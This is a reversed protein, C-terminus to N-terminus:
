QVVSALFLMIVMIGATFAPIAMRHFTMFLVILNQHLEGGWLFLHMKKIQSNLVETVNSATTATSM